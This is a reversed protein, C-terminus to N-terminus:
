APKGEATVVSSCLAVGRAGACWGRGGGRETFWVPLHDEDKISIHFSNQLEFVFLYAFIQMSDFIMKLPGTHIKSFSRSVLGLEHTWTQMSVPDLLQVQLDQVHLSPLPPAPPCVSELSIGIERQDFKFVFQAAISRGERAM